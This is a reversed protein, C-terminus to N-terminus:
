PEERWGEVKFASPCIDSLLCSGCIPRKADCIARGHDILRYTLVGWEDRPFVAMLDKEIKVPDSNKSLGLRESLRAVHTDVAIGDLKGFANFLVINATKRAVGPLRVLEEMTDPVTGGYEESIMKAAGMISKTKNRYFGTAHVLDEVDAPDAAALAEPTPYAEFLAPTAKNVSVDTTQASLIVSVLLQFEDDYRLVIHARPYEESLRKEIEAAREARKMDAAGMREARGSHSGSAVNPGGASITGSGAAQGPAREPIVEGFGRRGGDRAATSDPGLLPTVVGRSLAIAGLNSPESAPLM